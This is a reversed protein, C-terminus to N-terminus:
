VGDPVAKDAAILSELVAIEGDTKVLALDLAQAQAQLQQRQVEVQQRQLYFRMARAHTETLREHLTM